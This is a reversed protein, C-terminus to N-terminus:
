FFSRASNVLLGQRNIGASCGIAQPADYALHVWLRGDAPTWCEMENWTLPRGGGQSDLIFSHILGDDEM